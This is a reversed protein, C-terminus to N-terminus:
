VDGEGVDYHRMFLDELTPPASEIKTVGAQAIAQMVDDLVERDVQFQYGWDTEKWEHIGQDPLVLTKETEVYLHTRTLHRLDSMTGTEIVEGDRIIAIRDCLKEVESLIHSSLLVSKGEAKAELILEQFKREMLPDLGSTPEDLIYLDCDAAFAAVLAVKQRNGKSYTRCKKTPDLQFREILHQKREQNVKQGRLHVLYDIVQGGTLNPWLNVDGPVYAIRKHIKVADHWVDQGFITAEGATAKLIGLLIRITTSKGAGNPGIFGFIEGKDVELDVGSLAEVQGFRKTLGNTQLVSM